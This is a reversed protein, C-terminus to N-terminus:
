KLYQVIMDAESVFNQFYDPLTAETLYDSSQVVHCVFMDGDFDYPVLFPEMM